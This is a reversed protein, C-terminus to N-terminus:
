IDEGTSNASGPDANDDLIAINSNFSNIEHFNGSTPRLRKQKINSLRFKLHDEQVDEFRKLLINHCSTLNIQSAFQDTHANQNQYQNTNTNSIMNDNNDNNHNNNNVNNNDNSNNNCNLLKHNNDNISRILNSNNDNNYDGNYAHNNNGNRRESFGIHM